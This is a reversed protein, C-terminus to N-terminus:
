ESNAQAHPWRARWGRETEETRRDEPHGPLPKEADPNTQGHLGRHRIRSSSLQRSIRKTVPASVWYVPSSWSSVHAWISTLRNSTPSRPCPPMRLRCWHPWPWSLPSAWRWELRRPTVTWGSVWGPSLSLLGLLSTSRSWTTAWRACSSSRAPWDRTTEQSISFIVASFGVFLGSFRFDGPRSDPVPYTGTTLSIEM